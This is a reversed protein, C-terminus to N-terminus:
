KKEPLLFFTEGRGVMGLESRAREEIASTGKKLDAVEAELASNRAQLKANEAKLAEIDAQLAWVSPLNGEGLWLRYQLGLLLLLLLAFLWKTM